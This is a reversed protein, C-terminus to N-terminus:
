GLHTRPVVTLLSDAQVQEGIQREDDLFGGRQDRLGWPVDEPLEMQRALTAAVAGAAAEPQFESELETMGTVDIARLRLARPPALTAHSENPELTLM